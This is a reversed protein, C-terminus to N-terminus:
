LCTNVQEGHGGLPVASGPYKKHLVVGGHRAWGWGVYSLPAGEMQGCLNVFAVRNSFWWQRTAQQPVLLSSAPWVEGQSRSAPEMCTIFLVRRMMSCPPACKMLAKTVVGMHQGEREEMRVPFYTWM